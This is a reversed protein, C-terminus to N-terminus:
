NKCSTRHKPLFQYNRSVWSNAASGATISAPNIDMDMLERMPRHAQVTNCASSFDLFLMPAFAKPKRLHKLVAPVVTLVADETNRNRTHAFQLPDQFPLIAELLRQLVM